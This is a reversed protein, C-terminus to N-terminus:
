LRSKPLIGSLCAVNGVGESQSPLAAEVQSGVPVNHLILLFRPLTRFSSPQGIRHPSSAATPNEWTRQVYGYVRLLYLLLDWQQLSFLSTRRTPTASCQRRTEDRRKQRRAM